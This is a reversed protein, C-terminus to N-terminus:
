SLESWLDTTSVILRKAFPQRGSATFFSDIDKKQLRYDSAYFKCQIAHIDGTDQEEAVLDIGDDKASFGHEPGWEAWRWVRSFLDRYVPENRLYSLILEEFYTGKERESASSARLAELLAHLPFAAQKAYNKSPGPDTTLPASMTTRTTEDMTSISNDVIRM